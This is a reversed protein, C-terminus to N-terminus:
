KMMSPDARVLEFVTSLLRSESDTARWEYLEEESRTTTKARTLWDQTKSNQRLPFTSYIRKARMVSTTEGAPESAASLLAPYIKTSGDKWNILDPAARFLGEVGAAWAKGSAAALSLPNQFSYDSIRAAQPYAELLLQIMEQSRQMLLQHTAAAIALPVRGTGEEREALQKPFMDLAINLIHPPLFSDLTVTAHVMRYVRQSSHNAYAARLLLDAKEWLRGEQKERSPGDLVVHAWAMFLPTRHELPRKDRARIKKALEQDQPLCPTTIMSPDGQVLTRLVDLNARKDVAHYLPSRGHKDLQQIGKGNASLLLKVVAANAGYHTAFHLANSGESDVASAGKPHAKLLAEVVEVPPGGAVAWHLPLLGDADTYRAAKKDQTARELLLSWHQM